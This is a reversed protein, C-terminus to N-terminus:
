ATGLSFFRLFVPRWRLVTHALSHAHPTLFAESGVCSVEDHKANVSEKSATEKTNKANFFLANLYSTVAAM